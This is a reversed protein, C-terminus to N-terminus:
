HWDVGLTLLDTAPSPNQKMLAGFEESAATWFRQVDGTEGTVRVDIVVNHDRPDEISRWHWVKIEEPAIGFDAAHSAIWRRLGAIVEQAPADLWEAAEPTVSYGLATSPAAGNQPATTLQAARETTPEAM